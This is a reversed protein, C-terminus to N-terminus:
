FVVIVINELVGPKLGKIIEAENDNILGLTIKQIRARGDRVVYVKWNGQNDKFLATRPIKLANKKTATYIKIQLRYGVGLTKKDKKLLDLGGKSFDIKVHVRQQDVGLSSKKKFGKPNVRIVKGHIPLRGIAAGFIDVPDGVSIDIAEQTLINARVQLQNLDGIEMILEGAQLFRKSSVYRNLIVGNIPSKITCRKLNLQEEDLTAQAELLQNQMVHGYLKKITIFEDIYVPLLKFISGLINCASHMLSDSELDVKKVAAEMNAKTDRIRSIAQGSEKLTNAYEQAYKYVSKSADVKKLSIAILKDVTAIWDKSEKLGTIEIANYKNIEIQGKIANVRAKAKSVITQMDTKDIQAIMQGESIKTGPTLTIPEIRGAIPMAIKYVHPLVTVAEEEIYENITGKAAKGTRVPIGQISSYIIIVIVILAVVGGFIWKTKKM